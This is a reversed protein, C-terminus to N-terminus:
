RNIRGLLDLLTVLCHLRFYLAGFRSLLMLSAFGPGNV